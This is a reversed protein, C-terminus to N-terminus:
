TGRGYTAVCPGKARGGATMRHRTRARRQHPTARHHRAPLLRHPTSRAPASRRSGPLPQHLHALAPRSRDRHRVLRQPHTTAPAARHHRRSRRDDRPHLQGPHDLRAARTMMGGCSAAGGPSTPAQGSQRLGAATVERSPSPSSSSSRDSPACRSRGRPQGDSAQSALTFPPAAPTSSPVTPQKCTRASGASSGVHWRRHARASPSAATGAPLDSACSATSRRKSRRASRPGGASDSRPLSTPWTSPRADPHQQVRQWLRRYVWTGSPGVVPLWLLEVYAHHPPFGVLEILPDNWAILKLTDPYIPRAPRASPPVTTMPAAPNTAATAHPGSTGTAPSAAPRPHSADTM